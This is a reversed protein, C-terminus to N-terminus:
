KSLSSERFDCGKLAPLAHAEDESLLTVSTVHSKSLAKGLLGSSELMTTPQGNERIAYCVYYIKNPEIKVNLTKADFQGGEMMPKDMFNWEARFTHEAPTLHCWSFESDGIGAIKKGDVSVDVRGVWRGDSIRYVYVLAEVTNATPQAIM